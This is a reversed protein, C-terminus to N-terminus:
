SAYLLGIIWNVLACPLFKILLCLIQYDLGITYLPKVSRKMCLSAIFRGAKMPDAGNQEDREMRAVSKSIRGGYEADGADNRKRQGTFGTRIDGPQVACVSVGYPRIENALACSYANIAAKSASYYAQFPIAAPAAVSSINVIRGKGQKRMIPLVAKTVHVMGFFNVDMQRKADEADTFEIAGSIGFGACNVLIDVRGEASLIEGVAAKVAEEDTVDAPIHSFPTDQVERRSITYVKCGQTALAQAVCAGIGSTGGTVVAIKTITETM